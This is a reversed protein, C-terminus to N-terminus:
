AIKDEKKRKCLLSFHNELTKRSALRGDVVAVAVREVSPYVCAM